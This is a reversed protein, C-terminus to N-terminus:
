EELLGEQEMQTMFNALPLFLPQPFEEAEYWGYEAYKGPEKMEFRDSDVHGEVFVTVYHKGNEFLDNTVGCVQVDDLKIGAEEFVERRACEEFTEGHELHGGPLGWTGEGHEKVRKLLLAKGEHVVFVGIGVVPHNMESM